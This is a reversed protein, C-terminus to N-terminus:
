AFVAYSGINEFAEIHFRKFKEIENEREIIQDTEINTYPEVDFINEVRNEIKEIYDQDSLLQSITNQPTGMTTIHPMMSQVDSSLDNAISSFSRNPDSEPYPEELHMNQLYIEELNPIDQYSSGQQLLAAIEPPPPPLGLPISTLEHIDMANADPVKPIEYFMEKQRISGGLTSILILLVLLIIFVILVDKMKQIIVLIKNQNNRM